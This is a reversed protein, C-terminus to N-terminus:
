NILKTLTKDYFLMYAESSAVEAFSVPTVQTDSTRYWNSRSHVSIGRRYTIFHGSHAGGIHVSVARLLYKYKFQNGVHNTGNCVVSERTTHQRTTKLKPLLSLSANSSSDRVIRVSPDSSSNKMEKSRKENDFFCYERVDILEPFLFRETRKFVCRNPSFGVREIRIILLPPLECFGQKKILGSCPDKQQQLCRDCSAGQIYEPTFYGQLLRSFSLLSSSSKPFSLSLVCFKEERIKTYDCDERCCSLQVALLGLCPPKLLNENAAVNQIRVHDFVLSSSFSQTKIEIFDNLVKDSVDQNSSEIFMYSGTDRTMTTKNILSDMVTKIEVIKHPSSEGHRLVALEEDWTTVFVNFLEFLDQETNPPISWRHALLADILNSASCTKITVDNLDHIIRKLSDLFVLHQGDPVLKLDIAQIWRSFSRSSALAQLLSNVYCTNGLNLMAPVDGSNTLSPCPQRVSRNTTRFIYIIAGILSGTLLISSLFNYPVSKWVSQKVLWQLRWLNEATPHM